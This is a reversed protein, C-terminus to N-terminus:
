FDEFSLIVYGEELGPSYLSGGNLIHSIRVCHMEGSFGKDQDWEKLLLHDGVQFNRDNKRLEAKKLRERVYYFHEPLIKLEHYAM